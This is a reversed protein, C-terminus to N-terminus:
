RAQHPVGTAVPSDDVGDFEDAPGAVGRRALKAEVDLYLLGLARTDPWCAQIPVAKDQIAAPATIPARQDAAADARVRLPEETRGLYCRWPRPRAPHHGLDDDVIVDAVAMVGGGIRIRQCDAALARVACTLAAM